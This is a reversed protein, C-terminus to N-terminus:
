LGKVYIEILIFNKLKILKIKSLINDIDFDKIKTHKFYYHKYLSHIKVSFMDEKNFDTLLSAITKEIYNWIDILMQMSNDYEHFQGQVKLINRVFNSYHLVVVERDWEIFSEMEFSPFHEHVCM